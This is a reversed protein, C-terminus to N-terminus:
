LTFLYNFLFPFVMIMQYLFVYMDLILFLSFGVNIGIFGWTIGLKEKMVQPKCPFHLSYTLAESALSTLETRQLPKDKLSVSVCVNYNKPQTKLPRCCRHIGTHKGTCGKFVFTEIRFPFFRSVPSYKGSYILSLSM